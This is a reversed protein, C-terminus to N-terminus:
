IIIFLWKLIIVVRDQLGGHAAYSSDFHRCVNGPLLWNWL